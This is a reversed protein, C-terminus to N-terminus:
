IKIIDFRFDYVKENMRDKRNFIKTFFGNFEFSEYVEWESNSNLFLWQKGYCKHKQSYTIIKIQKNFIDNVQIVTQNIFDEYSDYNFSQITEEEEGYFFLVDFYDGSTSKGGGIQLSIENKTKIHIDGQDNPKVFNINNTQNIKDSIDNAVRLIDDYNQGTGIFIGNKLAQRVEIGM